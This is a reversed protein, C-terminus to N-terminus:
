FTSLFPYLMDKAYKRDPSSVWYHRTVTKHYSRIIKHSGPQQKGAETATTTSFMCILKPKKPAYSDFGARPRVAHM